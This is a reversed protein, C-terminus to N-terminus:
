LLECTKKKYVRAFANCFSNSFFQLVIALCTASYFIAIQKMIGNCPLNIYFHWYNSAM